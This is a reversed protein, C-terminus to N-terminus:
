IFYSSTTTENCCEIEYGRNEEHVCVRIVHCGTASVGEKNIPRDHDTNEEHELVSTKPCGCLVRCPCCLLAVMVDCTATCLVVLCQCPFCCTRVCCNQEDLDAM